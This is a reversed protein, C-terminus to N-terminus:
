ERPNIVVIDRAVKHIAKEATNGIIKGAIGKRGMTGIVLCQAGIKTSLGKLVESPEGKLIHCRDKEIDYEALLPAAKELAEREVKRVHADVDILDLDNVLTPIHIAQCCHLSCGLQIALKFAEELLQKNLRQKSESKAMFDLAVLVSKKSEYSQSNVMYIPVRLSRILHWDTPTYFLSESRHGTKIVMDYHNTECHALIWTHIHKEWVIEQTIDHSSGYGDVLATSEKKYHQLIGVKIAAYDYDGERAEHDGISEYCFSVIHVSVNSTKTFELARELALQPHNKPDAIVLLKKM